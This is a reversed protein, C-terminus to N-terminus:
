RAVWIKQIDVFQGDQMLRVFYVGVPLQIAPISLTQTGPNVEFSSSYVNKGLINILEITVHSSKNVNVELSLKDNAPNPYVSIIGSQLGEKYDNIGTLTDCSAFFPDFGTVLPPYCPDFYLTRDPCIVCYTPFGSFNQGNVIISFATTGGGWPGACPNSINYDMRYQDIVNNTDFLNNSIGWFEIDGQGAGTNQYIEEIVPAYLQCYYCTTYFLDIFVTKGSDLTNYLNRVIGDTTTITFDDAQKLVQQGPLTQSYLFCSFILAFISLIFRKM